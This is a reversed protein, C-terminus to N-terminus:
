KPLPFPMRAENVDVIVRGSIFLITMSAVSM